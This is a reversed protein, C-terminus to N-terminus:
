LKSLFYEEGSKWEDTLSGLGHSEHTIPIDGVMMKLGLKKAELALLLDYFHFSAPNDEDFRLKEIAERDFALFVGDLMVARHPYPGFCISTKSEDNGHAVSGHKKTGMLHWLSPRKIEVESAGAVGVVDVDDNEFCKKLKPFPNNDIWVDDHILVVREVDRSACMELFINYCRALPATNDEIFQFNVRMHELSKGIPREWINSHKTVSFIIEDM